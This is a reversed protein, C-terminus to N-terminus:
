LNLVIKSNQLSVKNNQQFNNFRFNYTSIDILM